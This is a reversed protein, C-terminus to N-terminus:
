TTRVGNTRLRDDFVIYQSYISFGSIRRKRDAETIKKIVSSDNTEKPRYQLRYMHEIINMVARSDGGLMM